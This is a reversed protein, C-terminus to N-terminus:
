LQELLLQLVADVTATRVAARDGTVNLLRHSIDGLQDVAIHVTGPSHGEAAGPGAVGTTALGIDAGLRLRAGTAMQRAVDAHVPGHERLLHESVGLLSTKLDAVYAVMGGRFVASAGPVDALRACVLGATLSEAVAITRGADGVREVIAHEPSM